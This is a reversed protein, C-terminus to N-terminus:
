GSTRRSGDRDGSARRERSSRLEYERRSGRRTRCNRQRPAISERIRVGATQKRGIGGAEDIRGVNRAPEHELSRFGCTELEGEPPQEYERPNAAAGLSRPGSPIARGQSRED